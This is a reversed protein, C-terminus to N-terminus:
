IQNSDSIQNMNTTITSLKEIRILLDQKISDFEKQIIIQLRKKNEINQEIQNYFGVKMSSLKGNNVDMKKVLKELYILNGDNSKPTMKEENYDKIQPATFRRTKQIKQIPNSQQKVKEKGYKKIFINQFNDLSNPLKKNHKYIDILHLSVILEGPNLFGKNDRDCLMILNRIIEPPLNFKHYFESAHSTYLNKFSLHKQFKACYGEYKRKNKLFIEDWDISQAESDELYEYNSVIVNLNSFKPLPLHGTKKVLAPQLPKENQALTIYQLCTIFEALSLYNPASCSLQWIKKWVDVQLGSNKFLPVVNKANIKDQRSDIGLLSLIKKFYQKQKFSLNRENFVDSM